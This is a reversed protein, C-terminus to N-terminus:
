SLILMVVGGVACLFLLPVGSRYLFRHLEPMVCAIISLVTCSAGPALPTLVVIRWPRSLNKTTLRQAWAIAPSLVFSDADVSLPTGGRSEVDPEATGAQEEDSDLRDVLEHALQWIIVLILFMSGVGVAACGFVSLTLDEVSIDRENGVLPVILMAGGGVLLGLGLILRAPFMASRRQMALLHLLDPTNKWSARAM